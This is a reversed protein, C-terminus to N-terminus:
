LGTLKLSYWLGLAVTFEAFAFIFIHKLPVTYEKHLVRIEGQYGRSEMANYLDNARKFSLVFMRSILQIYNKISSQFGRYGGRCQQAFKITEAVEIMVFLQRYILLMLETFLGGLGLCQLAHILEPVPLSFLLVYLVSVASMSKAMLLAGQILGHKSIGLSLFESYFLYTHLNTKTIGFELVVALSGLLLFTFPIQMLRSMVRLRVGLVKTSIYFMATFLLVSFVLSTSMLAMVLTCLAFLLRIVPHVSSFASNTTASYLYNM